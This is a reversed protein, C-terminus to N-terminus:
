SPTLFEQEDSLALRRSPTSGDHEHRLKKRVHLTPKPMETPTALESWIGGKREVLLPDAICEDYTHLVTL